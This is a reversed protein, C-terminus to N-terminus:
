ATMGQASDQRRLLMRFHRPPCATGEGADHFGAKRFASQSPGNDVRVFAVISTVGWHEFLFECAKRIAIVGLGRGTYPELLYASIVCAAGDARDFRVQGAPVGDVLVILMKRSNGCLTERFWRMHEEWTVCKGSSARAVLFPDNRWRFVMRADEEEAARLVVLGGDGSM